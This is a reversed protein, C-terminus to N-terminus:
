RQVSFQNVKLKADSGLPPEPISTERLDNESPEVDHLVPDTVSNSPGAAAPAPAPEAVPHAGTSGGSCGGTCGFSLNLNDAPYSACNSSLLGCRDLTGCSMANASGCNRLREMMSGLWGPNFNHCGLRSGCGCDGGCSGCGWADWGVNACAPACCTRLGGLLQGRGVSVCDAGSCGDDCAAPTSCDEAENTCSGRDQCAGKLHSLLGGGGLRCGGCPMGPTPAYVCASPSFNDWLYSYDCIVPAGCNHQRCGLCQAAADTAMTGMGFAAVLALSLYRM